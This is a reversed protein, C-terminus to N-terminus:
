FTSISTYQEGEIETDNERKGRKELSSFIFFPFSLM